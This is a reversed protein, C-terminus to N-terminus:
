KINILNQDWISSRRYIIEYGKKASNDITEVKDVTKVEVLEKISFIAGVNLENHPLHIISNLKKFGLLRINEKMKAPLGITSRILKVQFYKQNTNIKYDKIINNILPM